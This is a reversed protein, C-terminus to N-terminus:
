GADWLLDSLASQLERGPEAKRDFVERGAQWLREKWAADGQSRLFAAAARAASVLTGDNDEAFGHLIVMGAADPRTVRGQKLAEALGMLVRQRFSWEAWWAPADSPMTAAPDDSVLAALVRDIAMHDPTAAPRGRPAQGNGFPGTGRLAAPVDLREDRPKAYHRARQVIRRIPTWSMPAKAPVGESLFDVGLRHGASWAAQAFPETLEPAERSALVALGATVATAVARDDKLRIAEVVFRGVVDNAVADFARPHKSIVRMLLTAWFADARRKDLEALFDPMMEAWADCDDFAALAANIDEGRWGGKAVPDFREFAALMARRDQRALIDDVARDIPDIRAALDSRGAQTLRKALTETLDTWCDPARDPAGAILRDMRDLYTEIVPLPAHYALQDLTEGAAKPDLDIDPHFLMELMALLAPPHPTGTGWDCISWFLDPDRNADILQAIAGIDPNQAPMAAIERALAAHDTQSAM